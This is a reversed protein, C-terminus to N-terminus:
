IKTVEHRVFVSMGLPNHIVDTSLLWMRFRLQFGIVSLWAIRRLTEYIFTKPVHDSAQTFHRHILAGLM